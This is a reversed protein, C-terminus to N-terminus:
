LQIVNKPSYKRTCMQILHLVSKKTTETIHALIHNCENEIHKIYVSKSLDNVIFKKKANALNQINKLSQKLTQPHKHQTKFTIKNNCLCSFRTMDWLIEAGMTVLRGHWDNSHDEGIFQAFHEIIDLSITENRLTASSPIHRKALARFTPYFDLTIEPM